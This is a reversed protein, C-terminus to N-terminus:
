IQSFPVQMAQLLTIVLHFEKILRWQAVQYLKKGIHMGELIM